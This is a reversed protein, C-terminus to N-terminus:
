NWIFTLSCSAHKATSSDQRLFETLNVFSIVNKEVKKATKIQLFNTTIHKQFDEKETM